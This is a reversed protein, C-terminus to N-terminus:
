HAGASVGALALCRPPLPTHLCEAEFRQVDTVRAGATILRRRLMAYDVDADPPARAFEALTDRVVDKGLTNSMAVWLLPGVNYRYNENIEEPATVRDLPKVDLRAGEVYYGLREEYAAEGQLRRVAVAALYEATSEMMFWRLPGRPNYREYFYYHAMEHALYHLQFRKFHEDSMRSVVEDFSLRGSTALTPWSAFAWAIKGVPQSRQVSAFSLLVPSDEIPLGLYSRHASAIQALEEGLVRASAPSAEAGVFYSGAYRSVPFDGAYLLLPRRVSSVLHARRGRVPASGNLYIARCTACTVEIDYALQDLQGGNSQLVVPYFRTQETARVTRGDFAVRGKWDGAAAEGADLHFVPYLGVFEVCIGDASDNEALTYTTADGDANDMMEVDFAYDKGSTADTVERVNLGNALLFRRVPGTRTVCLNGALSGTRTDVNLRGTLRAQERAEAPAAEGLAFALILLAVLKRTM